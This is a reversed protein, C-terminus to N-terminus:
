GAKESSCDVLYSPSVAALYGKSPLVISKELFAANFGVTEFNALSSSVILLPINPFIPAAFPPMCGPVVGALEAMEEPSAFRMKKLGPVGALLKQKDLSHSGPLVVTAFREQDKWYLKVLLAKAGTVEPHGAEARAAASEESTKCPRHDIAVYSAGSQDLLDRIAQYAASNM